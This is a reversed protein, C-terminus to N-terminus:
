GWNKCGDLCLQCTGARVEERFKEYAASNWIEEWPQKLINGFPQMLFCCPYVSGDISIVMQCTPCQCGRMNRQVVERRSETPLIGTGKSDAQGMIRCAETIYAMNEPTEELVLGPDYGNPFGVMQANALPLFRMEDAGIELAFRALAPSEKVNYSTAVSVLIFNYRRPKAALERCHKLVESHLQACTGTLFSYTEPNLSHLSILVDSVKHKKVLSAELRSGNSTFSINVDRDTFYQLLKEFYPVISIEGVGGINVVNAEKWLSDMRTTVDEYSWCQSDYRYLRRSCFRCGFNCVTNFVIIICTPPTRM